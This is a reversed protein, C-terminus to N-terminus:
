GMRCVVSSFSSHCTLFSLPTACVRHESDAENKAGQGSQRFSETVRNAQYATWGRATVPVLLWSAAAPLPCSFPLGGAALGARGWAYSWKTLSANAHAEWTRSEELPDEWIDLHVPVEPCMDSPAQKSWRCDCAGDFGVQCCRSKRVM